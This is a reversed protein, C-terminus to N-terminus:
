EDHSVAPLRLATSKIEDLVAELGREDLGPNLCVLRIARHGAAIGHSILLRSEADLLDCVAASDRGRVQFCVNVSEPPLILELDPDDSVLRAAHQALAFLRDIRQRYGDDGHFRWAAWLKLADNRRGCQISRTGPNLRDEDAQFLYDASENLHRRLLGPQRLLVVSCSLPVGMMKHPNWTMSDADELGDLLHRHGRSLLASAGLAGDVHLWAGHSAAIEALAPVPDFAGAVTTGTTAVVLLPLVGRARDDLMAQELAGPDMRDAGDCRVERVCGRGLGLIGANKRISYHSALSTYIGVPTGRVGRERAEPLLQNRAVLM